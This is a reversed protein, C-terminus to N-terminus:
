RPNLSRTRTAVKQVEFGFSVFRYVRGRASHDGPVATFMGYREGGNSSLYFYKPCEAFSYEVEPVYGDVPAERMFSESNTPRTASTPCIAWGNQGTIRIRWQSNNHERHNGEVFTEADRYLTFWLDSTRRDSTVPSGSQTFHGYDFDLGFEYSRQDVDVKYTGSGRLPDVSPLEKELVLTVRDSPRSKWSWQARRQYFGEKSVSFSIGNPTAMEFEGNQDTHTEFAEYREEWDLARVWGIRGEIQADPVPNGNEDVVAARLTWPHNTQCAITPGLSFAAVVLLWILRTYQRVNYEKAHPIRLGAAIGANCRTM